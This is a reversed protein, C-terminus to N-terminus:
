EVESGQRGQRSWPQSGTLVQSYRPRLAPRGPRLVDGHLVNWCEEAGQNLRKGSLKASLTPARRSTKWPPVTGRQRRGASRGRDEAAPTGPPGSARTQFTGSSLTCNKPGM